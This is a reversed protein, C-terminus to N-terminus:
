DGVVTQDIKYVTNEYSLKSKIICFINIVSLINDKMCPGLPPWLCLVLTMGIIISQYNNMDSYMLPMTMRALLKLVAPHVSCTDSM